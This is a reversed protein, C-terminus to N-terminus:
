NRLRKGSYPRSESKRPAHCLSSKRQSSALVLTAGANMVLVAGLADAIKEKTYGLEKAKTAHVSYYGDYRTTTAEALAIREHSKPPSAM